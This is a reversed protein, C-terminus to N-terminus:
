RSVGRKEVIYLLVRGEKTRGSSSVLPLKKERGRIRTTSKGITYSAIRAKKEGTSLVRNQGEGRFNSVV